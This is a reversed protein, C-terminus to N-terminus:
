CCRRPCRVRRVDARRPRRGDCGPLCAGGILLRRRDFMDALVGGVVGFIVDPLMDATQVLAVLVSAHPQDVLLWQAGVTQMWLGVNSVLVAIWIARFVGIRLPSWTSRTRRPTPPRPYRRERLRCLLGRRRRRCGRAGGATPDDLMMMASPRRRRPTAASQRVRLPAVSAVRQVHVRLHDALKAEREAGELRAPRVHGEVDARPSQGCRRQRNPQAREVGFEIQVVVHEHEAGAVALHFAPGEAARDRIEIAIDHVRKAVHPDVDGDRHLGDSTGSGM